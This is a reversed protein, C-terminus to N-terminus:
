RGAYRQAATRRAGLDDLDEGVGALQGALLAECARLRALLAAARPGLSPPVGGGTPAEWRLAPPAAGAAAAAEVAALEDELADLSAAWAAPNV